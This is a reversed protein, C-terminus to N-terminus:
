YSGTFPTTFKFISGGLTGAVVGISGASTDGGPSGVASGLTKFYQVSGDSYALQYLKGDSSGVHVTNQSTTVLVASPGTVNVAWTQTAYTGVDAIRYVKGAGSFAFGDTTRQLQSFSNGAGAGTDWTWRQSYDSTNLSYVIGSRAPFSVYARSTGSFMGAADLDGYNYSGLLAGDSLLDLVWLSPQNGAAGAYSVVFLKDHIFDMAPPAVMIDVNNGGSQNFTWVISGDTANLAYVKNNTRSIATDNRTVFYILDYTYKAKFATSAFNRSHIIPAAMIIDTPNTRLDRSWVVQGNSANIAYGYGNQAGTFIWPGQGTSLTTVTMKNQIAGGIDSPRWLENGTFTSLGNVYGLNSATYVGVGPNVTPTLMTAVGISYSWKPNPEVGSTPMGKLGNSSPVDGSAYIFDADHNHIKYCYKLGNTLGSNQYSTVLSGNKDAYVVTANGITNGATYERGDEPSTDPPTCTVADGTVRLILVGDHTAPNTWNLTVKANGSVATFKTVDPPTTAVVVTEYTNKNTTINLQDLLDVRFTYETTSAPTTATGVQAFTVPFDCSEGNDIYCSAGPADWRLGTRTWTCGVTPCTVNATSPTQWISSDPNNITVRKIGVSSDNTVTWTVTKNTTNRLVSSPASTVSTSSIQGTDSAATNTQLPGDATAYGTYYYTQGVSGTITFTWEFPVTYGPLLEDAGAPSPGSVYTSTATGFKCLQSGCASTPVINTLTTSGANTVQMTVTVTDGSLISAPQLSMTATFNGISVTNSTMEASSAAGNSASGKFFVNGSATANCTYGFQGSAGAALNLTAPSPSSLTCAGTDGTFVGLTPAITNQTASSRNTVSMTVNIDTGVTVTLPSASVSAELSKVAWSPKTTANANNSTQLCAPPGLNKTARVRSFTDTFDAAAPAPIHRITFERYSGPAIPDVDCTNSIFRVVTATERTVTWGPSEGSTIDQVTANFTFVVNKMSETSSASNVVRFKLESEVAMVTYDKSDATLYVDFSIAASAVAPMTLLVVVIGVVIITKRM